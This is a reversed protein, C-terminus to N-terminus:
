GPRRMTQLDFKARNPVVTTQKVVLKQMQGSTNTIGAGSITLVASLVSNITFRRRGANFVIESVELDTSFSIRLENSDALTAIDDPGNPVTGEEWNAPNEWDGDVPDLKWTASGAQAAHLSLCMLPLLGFRGACCLYLRFRM